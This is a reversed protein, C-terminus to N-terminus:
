VNEFEGQKWFGIGVAERIHEAYQLGNIKEIWFAVAKTNLNGKWDNVTPVEVPIDRDLCRCVYMGVLYALEFTYGQAAGAQSIASGGWLNVGEIVCLTPKCKDLLVGFQESLNHARAIAGGQMGIDETLVGVQPNKASLWFAWGTHYGPDVTLMWKYEFRKLMGM